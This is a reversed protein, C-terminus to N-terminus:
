IGNQKNRLLAADATKVLQDPDANSDTTTAIGATVSLLRDRPKECEPDHFKIQLSKVGDKVDRVFREAGRTDTHTLITSYEDSSHYMPARYREGIEKLLAGVRRLVRDGEPHGLGDQFLKFRDLDMLIVSLPLNERNKANLVDALHRKFHRFDPLGSVNNLEKVHCDASRVCKELLKNPDDGSIIIWAGQLNAGEARHVGPPEELTRFYWGDVLGTIKFDRLVEEPTPRAIPPAPKSGLMKIRSFPQRSRSGTATAPEANPNWNEGVLEEVKEQTLTQRRANSLVRSFRNPKGPQVVDFSVLEFEDRRGSKPSRNEIWVFDEYNLVQGFDMSTDNTCECVATAWRVDLSSLPLDGTNEHQTVICIAKGNNLYGRVTCTFEPQAKFELEFKLVLPM